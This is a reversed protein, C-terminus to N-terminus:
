VCVCVCVCMHVSVIYIYIYFLPSPSPHPNVSPTKHLFLSKDATGKHTYPSVWMTASRGGDLEGGGFLVAVREREGIRRERYGTEV